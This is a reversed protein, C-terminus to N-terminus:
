LRIRSIVPYHDSLEEYRNKHTVVHMSPDALIFDIRLPYYPFYFTKGTGSGKEDYTDICDGKIQHYIASFQNNNLDGCIIVRYPCSNRHNIFIDTQVQQKTFAKGMRNVIRNSNEQSIEESEPDINFSQMHLNYIRVTDHDMLLDTFIANNGSDPFDLSGQNVIKYRSFIAQGANGGKVKVYHYPYNNFEPQVDDYFEQLCLIDPDEDRIEQLIRKETDKGQIWDYRDFLRVNYTMLKVGSTTVVENTGGFKYISNVKNFGLLLVIFSLLWQRRWQLLWFIIFLINVIVLPPVSLSFIGFKPFSSIPVYPVAFSILLLLAFLTNLFFLGKQLWNLKKM